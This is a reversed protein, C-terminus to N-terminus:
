KVEAQFHLIQSHETSSKNAVDEKKPPQFADDDDEAVEVGEDQVEEVFADEEVGVEEDKVVHKVETRFIQLTRFIQPESNLQLSDFRDM